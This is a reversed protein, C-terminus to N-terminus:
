NKILNELYPLAEMAGKKLVTLSAVRSALILAEKLWTEENFSANKQKAYESLFAGMLADGAGTTDVADVKFAEQFYQHTQTYATVGNAGDSVLIIQHHKLQISSIISEVSANGYLLQLEDKSFKLINAHKVYEKVTSLYQNLDKFLSLRLNVDFSITKDNEKAHEIFRDTTQKMPFNALGVSGFHLVDYEISNIQDVNLDLMQDAAPDRYFVFDRDGTEDISVFALSTFYDSSQYITSTDIGEKHITDILFHGFADNGVQSVVQSNGGLRKIAVAVNAPAGGPKKIFSTVHELKTSSESPLMDILLEGLCLVKKMISEM